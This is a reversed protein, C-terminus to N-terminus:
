SAVEVPLLSRNKCEFVSKWASQIAGKNEPLMDLDTRLQRPTNYRIGSHDPSRYALGPISETARQSALELLTEEVEGILVYNFGADLYEKVHDSSDSGHVAIRCGYARATKAMWFALERNRALCMKSPFNFDDECVAVLGPKCSRLIANFREEPRELTPDLVSVQMGSQRLHAAALLTQLPPYPQMKQVQKADYFLHNSHTLLVDISTM